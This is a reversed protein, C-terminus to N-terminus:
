QGMFLYPKWRDSITANKQLFTILTPRFPRRRLHMGAGEPTRDGKRNNCRSCACVLNEWTDAGGATKPVVHDVTMSGKTVGCYQCRHGDRSIVNKRTLMIKKYPVKRYHWLRIVSPVAFSRNVSHLRLGDATEIMEVKGQFLLVVARRATCLSLPEFNQNLMLVRRSILSLGHGNGDSGGTGHAAGASSGGLPRSGYDSGLGYRQGDDM